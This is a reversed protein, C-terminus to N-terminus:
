LRTGKSLDRMREVRRYVRDGGLYEMELYILNGRRVFKLEKIGGVITEPEKNLIISGRKMDGTYLYMENKWCFYIHYKEEAKEPLYILLMNGTSVHSSLFTQNLSYSIVSKKYIKVERSAEVEYGIKDFSKGLIRDVERKELLVSLIRHSSKLLPHVSTFVLVTMMLAILAEVMKM